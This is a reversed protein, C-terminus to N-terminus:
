KASDIKNVFINGTFFQKYQLTALEIKIVKFLQDSAPWCTVTPRHLITQYHLIHHIVSSHHHLRASVAEPQRHRAREDVKEAARHLQRASVAALPRAAAFVPVRGARRVDVEAQREDVVRLVLAEADLCLRM